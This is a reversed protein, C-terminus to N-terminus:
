ITIPILIFFIRRTLYTTALVILLKQRTGITAQSHRRLLVRLIFCRESTAALGQDELSHGFRCTSASTDCRIVVLRGLLLFFLM